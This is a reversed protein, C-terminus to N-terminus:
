HRYIFYILNKTSIALLTVFSRSLSIFVSQILFTLFNSSIKCFKLSFQCNDNKMKSKHIYKIHQLFCRQINM